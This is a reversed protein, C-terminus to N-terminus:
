PSMVRGDNIRDPGNEFENSIKADNNDALTM